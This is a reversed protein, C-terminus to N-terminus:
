TAVGEELTIDFWRKREEIDLIARVQFLRGEYVMRAKSTIDTRYRTYFHHTIPSELQGAFYRENGSAPKLAGRVAAATAIPTWAGEFGGQGDNVAPPNEFAVTHRLMGATLDCCKM